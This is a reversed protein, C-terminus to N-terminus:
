SQRLLMSVTYTPHALTGIEAFDFGSHFRMSNENLPAKMVEAMVPVQKDNAIEIVRKYLAAGIGKGRHTSSIAIRDVYLFDDYRQNFWEYNVSSYGTKPPLCIVFGQLADDAFGGLALTAFQLLQEIDLQSVKGVWPLGDENITWIQPIDETNLPKIITTKVDENGNSLISM